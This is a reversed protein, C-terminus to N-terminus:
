QGSAADIEAQVDQEAETDEVEADTEEDQVDQEAATDEVEADMEEDQVDREAKTDEVEADMEEDQVDREAQEDESGGSREAPENAFPDDGEGTADDEFTEGPKQAPKAPSAPKAVPAPVEEIGAPAPSGTAAGGPAVLEPRIDEPRRRRRVDTAADEIASYRRGFADRERQLAGLRARSRFRELTLRETGQVRELSLSVRRIGGTSLERDAGATFDAEAESTRGLRLAALGRFYYGRPDETGAEIANTLDDYARHFDGAHYAHIGAGIADRVALPEEGAFEAAVVAGGAIAVSLAMVVFTGRVTGGRAAPGLWEVAGCQRGWWDANVMQLGKGRVKRRV